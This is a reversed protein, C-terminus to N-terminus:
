RDKRLGRDGVGQSGTLPRGDRGTEEQVQVGRKQKTGVLVKWGDCGRKAWIHGDQVM